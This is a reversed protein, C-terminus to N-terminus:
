YLNAQMSFQAYNFKDAGFESSDDDIKLPYSFVLLVPAIPTMIRFQLGTSYVWSNFNFDQDNYIYGGDVFLSPIVQDDNFPKLFVNMSATTILDGGIAKGNVKEGFTMVGRVPSTPSSYFKENFPLETNCSDDNIQGTLCGTINSFGSFGQGVGVRVTPNITVPWSGLKKFLAIKSDIIGYSTFSENMPVGFKLSLEERNGSSPLVARDLTNRTWRMTTVFNWINNGFRQISDRISDPLSTDNPDYSYNVKNVEATMAMNQYISIPAAVSLNFGVRESAYSQQWTYKSVKTNDNANQKNSYYARYGLSLGNNLVFPIDGLISLTTRTRAKEIRFDINNGTGAFNPHKLSTTLVVYDTSNFGMELNATAEPADELSFTIDVERPSSPVPTVTPKINKIYSLNSLRRVSEDLVAQSFLEGESIAIERRLTKDMSLTNGSFTITRVKIPIGREVVLTVDVTASSENPIVLPDITKLPYRMAGFVKTMSKTMQFIDKRSFPLKQGQELRSQINQIEPIVVAKAQKDGKVILSNYMFRPGEDITVVIDVFQGNESYSVAVNEITFKLFGNEIYFNTLEAKSREFAASSYYNGGFVRAFLSPRGLTMQKFLVRNTFALNGNINLKRIQYQKGKMVTIEVDVVGGDVKKVSEAITVEPYGNIQYEKQLSYKFAHLKAPDLVDGSELHSKKLFENIGDEPILKNKKIEVKRITPYETVEIIVNGHQITIAVRSFLRKKYLRKIANNFDSQHVDLGPSLESFAVITSQPVRKNGEVTIKQIVEAHCGIAIMSMILLISLQQRLNRFM